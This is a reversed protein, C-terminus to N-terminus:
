RVAAHQVVTLETEENEYAAIGHKVMGEVIAMFINKNDRFKRGRLSVSVVQSFGVVHVELRRRLESVPIDSKTAGQVASRIVSESQLTEIVSFQIQRYDYNRSIPVDVRHSVRILAFVDFQATSVYISLGIAIVLIALLLTALSFRRTVKPIRIGACIM